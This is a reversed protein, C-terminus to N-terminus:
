SSPSAALAAISRDWQDPDRYASTSDELAAYEGPSLGLIEASASQALSARERAAKLAKAKARAHEASAPDLADASVISLNLSFGVSPSM